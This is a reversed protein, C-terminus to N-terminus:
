ISTVREASSPDQTQSIIARLLASAAVSHRESVTVDLVTVALNCGSPNTVRPLESPSTVPPRAGNPVQGGKSQRQQAHPLRHTPPVSLGSPWVTVCM